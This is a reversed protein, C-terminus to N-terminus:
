GSMQQHWVQIAETDQSNYIIGSPVSPHLYRKSNTNKMKKLCIGLLPIALNCPLESKLKRLVRWVRKWPLQVLKCECWCYTYLPERKEVDKSVNTIQLRLVPIRVPM